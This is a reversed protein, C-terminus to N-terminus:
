VVFYKSNEDSVEEASRKAEELTNYGRSINHSRVVAFQGKEPFPTFHHRRTRM